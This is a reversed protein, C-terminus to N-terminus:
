QRLKRFRNGTDYKFQCAIGMIDQTRSWCNILKRSALIHSLLAQDGADLMM